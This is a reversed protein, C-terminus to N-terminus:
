AKKKRRLAGFGALGGVLLLASAPLPVQSVAIADLDFGDISDASSTDVLKLSDFWGTYMLSAGGSASAVTNSLSGIFTESGGQVAFVDVSELHNLVNGGTIEYIAVEGTGLAAFGLTITGGKGLSYFKGDPASLANATNSREAAVPTGNQDASIVSDAYIIAASASGASIMLAAGAALTKLINM